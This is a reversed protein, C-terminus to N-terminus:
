LFIYCQKKENSNLKWEEDFSRGCYSCEFSDKNSKPESMHLKLDRPSQFEKECKKCKIMSRETVCEEFKKELTKHKVQLTYFRLVLDVLQYKLQVIEGELDKVTKRTM